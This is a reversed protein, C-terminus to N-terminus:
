YARNLLWHLQCSPGPEMEYTEQCSKAAKL